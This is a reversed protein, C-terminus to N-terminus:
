KRARWLALGAGGLTVENPPLRNVLEFVPAQWPWCEHFLVNGCPKTMSWDLETDNAHDGDLYAFDFALDRAVAAKEDNDAIDICTVNKVGAYDLLEHKLPNHAIDVSVVQDFFRSLVLATLGNWTGIEFCLRGRVKSERLFQDLGHFVSSRRFPEGGYREFVKLLQPDTLITQVRRVVQKEMTETYFQM